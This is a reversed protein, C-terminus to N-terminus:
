EEDLGKTAGSRTAERVRSFTRPMATLAVAVCWVVVATALTAPPLKAPTAAVTLMFMMPPSVVAVTVSETSLPPSLPVALLACATLM